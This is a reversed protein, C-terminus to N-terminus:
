GSLVPVMALVHEAAMEWSNERAIQLRRCRKDESEYVDMSRLMRVAEQGTEAVMMVEAYQQIAPIPTGVVPRGTAFCELLKIPNVGQAYADTKYPLVFADCDAIERVVQRHPVMPRWTINEHPPLTLRLPGVLLIQFQEALALLFDYDLYPGIGGFYGLKRAPKRVQEHSLQNFLDFDVGHGVVQVPKGTWQRAEEALFRAPTTVVDAMGLMRRHAQLIPRPTRPDASWCDVYDYILARPQLIRCLDVAAQTPSYNIVLPPASLFREIKEALRPLFLRRNLANLFSYVAPLAVPSLVHLNSPRWQTAVPVVEAQHGRSRFLRRSIRNLEDLRPIRKPLSEVFVVQPSLRALVSALAQHRQWTFNWEISSLVVVPDALQSRM